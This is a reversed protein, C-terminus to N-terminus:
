LISVFGRAKQRGRGFMRRLKEIHQLWTLTSGVLMKLVGDHRFLMGFTSESQLIKSPSKEKKDSASFAPLLMQRVDVTDSPSRGIAVECAAVQQSGVSVPLPTEDSRSGDVYLILEADQLQGVMAEILQRSCRDVLIATNALRFLHGDVHRVDIGLRDALAAKTMLRAASDQLCAANFRSAEDQLSPDAPQLPRQRQVLSRFPLALPWWDGDEWRGPRLLASMTAEPISPFASHRRVVAPQNAHPEPQRPPNTRRRICRRAEELQEARSRLQVEAGADILAERLLADSRRKVGQRIRPEPMVAAGNAPSVDAPDASSSALSVHQRHARALLESHGVEAEAAQDWPDVEATAAEAPSCSEAAADAWADM